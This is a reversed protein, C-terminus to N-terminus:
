SASDRPTRKLTQSISRSSRKFFSVIGDEFSRWRPSAASLFSAEQVADLSPPQARQEDAPEAPCAASSTGRDNLTQRKAINAQHNRLVMEAGSIDCNFNAQKGVPKAPQLFTSQLESISLSSRAASRRSQGSPRSSTSTAREDSELVPDLVHTQKRFRESRIRGKKRM